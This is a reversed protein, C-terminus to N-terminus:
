PKVAEAVAWSDEYLHYRHIKGDRVSLHIAFPTVIDRGTSRVTSVLDGLVVADQDDALVKLIEFRKSDLHRPVLTFFELMGAPSDVAPIWPIRPASPISFDVQEAFLKAAGEADRDHVLQFLDRVLDATTPMSM